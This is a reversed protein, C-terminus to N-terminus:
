DVNPIEIVTGLPIFEDFGHERFINIDTDEKMIFVMGIGCNFTKFMDTMSTRTLSKIWKYLEIVDTIGYKPNSLYDFMDNLEFNLDWTLPSHCKDPNKYASHSLIRYINDSFGGGTIHAIGLINDRLEPIKLMKPIETYIRTPKLLETIKSEYILSYTGELESNLECQKVMDNILSFGNSHIGNSPLGYLVCGPEITDRRCDIRQCESNVSSGIAFGGLDCKGSRYMGRMEATEGGALHCDAIKCGKKISNVLRKCLSIDMKDIALYDLFYLPAIGHVYLDNVSMAVLDIGIDDLKNYKLALDLKTGVGDTALGYDDCSLRCTFCFDGISNNDKKLYEVFNNGDDINVSYKLPRQNYIKLYEIFCSAMYINEYKTPQLSNNKNYTINMYQFSHIVDDVNFQQGISIYRKVNYLMRTINGNSTNFIHKNADLNLMNNGYENLLIKRTDVYVSSYNDTSLLMDINFSRLVDITQRRADMTIDASDKICLLPISYLDSLEM